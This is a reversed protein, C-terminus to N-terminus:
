DRLVCKRAVRELSQDYVESVASEQYRTQFDPLESATIFTLEDLFRGAESKRGKFREIIWEANITHAADWLLNFCNLIISCDSTGWSWPRQALLSRVDLLPYFYTPTLEAAVEGALVLNRIEQYGPQRSFNCGEGRRLFDILKASGPFILIKDDQSLLYDKEGGGNGWLTWSTGEALQLRVPWLAADQWSDLRQM